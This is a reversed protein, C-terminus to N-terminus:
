AKGTDSAGTEDCLSCFTSEFWFAEGVQAATGKMADQMIGNGITSLEKGTRTLLLRHFAKAVTRGVLCYRFKELLLFLSKIHQQNISPQVLVRKPISFVDHGGTPGAIVGNLLLNIGGNCVRNRPRPPLQLLARAKAMAFLAIGHDGFRATQRYRPHAQADM